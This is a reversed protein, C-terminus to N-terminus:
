LSAVAKKIKTELESITGDNYVTIDAVLSKIGAESPHNDTALGAREIRIIRAGVGRLAAAENQFRVDSVVVRDHRRIVDLCSHIWINKDICDRGWETGLTQMAHRPSRGELESSPCEKLHGDVMREAQAQTVGRYRLLAYLATKIGGAFKVNIFGEKVLAAAATDKGSRRLGVLGIIVPKKGVPSAINSPAADVSPPEVVSEVKPVLKDQWASWCCTDPAVNTQVTGDFGLTHLMHPVFKQLAGAAGFGFKKFAEAIKWQVDMSVEVRRVFDSEFLVVGLEILEEKTPQPFQPQGGAGFAKEARVLNSRVPPRPQPFDPTTM